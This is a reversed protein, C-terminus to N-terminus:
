KVMAGLGTVANHLDAQERSWVDAEAVAYSDLLSKAAEAVRELADLRERSVTVMKDGM